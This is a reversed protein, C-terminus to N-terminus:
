ARTSRLDCREIAYWTEAQLISTIMGDKTMGSERNHWARSYAVRKVIGSQVIGCEQNRRTKTTGLEQSYSQGMVSMIAGSEDYWARVKIGAQQISRPIRHEFSPLCFAHQQCLRICPNAFDAHDTSRGPKRRRTHHALSTICLWCRVLCELLISHHFLLQQM